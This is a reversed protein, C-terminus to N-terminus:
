ASRRKTSLPRTIQEAPIAAPMSMLRCTTLRSIPRSTATFVARCISYGHLSSGHADDNPWFGGGVLVGDPVDVSEGKTLVFLGPEDIGKSVAAVDPHRQDGLPRAPDDTVDAQAVQWDDRLVPRHRRQGQSWHRDQGFELVM